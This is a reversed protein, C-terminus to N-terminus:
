HIACATEYAGDRERQLHDFALLLDVTAATRPLDLPGSYITSGQGNRGIRVTLHGDTM